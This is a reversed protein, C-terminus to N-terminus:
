SQGRSPEPDQAIAALSAGTALAAGGAVLLPAVNAGTFPLVAPIPSRDTALAEAQTPHQSHPTAHTGRVHTPPPTGAAQARLATSRMSPASWAVAAGLAVGSSRKLLVRRSISARPEAVHSGRGSAESPHQDDSITGV